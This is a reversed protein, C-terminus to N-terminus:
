QQAVLQGFEVNEAAFLQGGIGGISALAAGIDAAGSAVAGVYACNLAGQLMGKREETWESPIGQVSAQAALFGAEFGGWAQDWAQPGLKSRVGMAAAEFAAAEVGAQKPAHKGSTPSWTVKAYDAWTVCYVELTWDIVSQVRAAEVLPDLSVMDASATQADIAALVAPDQQTARRSGNFALIAASKGHPVSEGGTGGTGSSASSTSGGGAGAIPESGCGIAVVCMIMMVLISKM